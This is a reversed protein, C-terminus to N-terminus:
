MWARRLGIMNYITLDWMIGGDRGSKVVGDVIRNEYDIMVICDYSNSNMTKVDLLCNCQM